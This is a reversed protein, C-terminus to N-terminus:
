ELQSPDVGVETVGGPDISQWTTVGGPDVGVAMVGGLDISELQWGTTVGGPDVGVAM